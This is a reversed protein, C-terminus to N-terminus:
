INKAAVAKLATEVQRKVDAYTDAPSAEYLKEQGDYIAPVYYYDYSAALSKEKNEDIWCVQVAAYDEKESQLERLAKRANMCYPCGEMYFITMEKAM